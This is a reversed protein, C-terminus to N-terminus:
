DFYNDLNIESDIYLAGIYYSNHVVISSDGLSYCQTLSDDVDHLLSGKVLGPIYKELARCQKEFLHEDPESCINYTYM